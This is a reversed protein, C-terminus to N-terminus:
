LRTETAGIEALIRRAKDVDPARTSKVFAEVRLTCATESSVVSAGQHIMIVADRERTARDERCDVHISVFHGDQSECLVGITKVDKNEFASRVWLDLREGLHTLATVDLARLNLTARTEAPKSTPVVASEPRKVERHSKLWWGGVGGLAIALLGLWPVGSNRRNKKAPSNSVKASM